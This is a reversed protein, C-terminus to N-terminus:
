TGCCDATDIVSADFNIYIFMCFKQKPTENNFDKRFQYKARNGFFQKADTPKLKLFDKGIKM